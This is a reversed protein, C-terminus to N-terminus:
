KGMHFIIFTESNMGHKEFEKNFVSSANIITFDPSFNQLQEKEPQIFMNHVFHAQWARKALIRVNISYNPDFGAFGDFLYTKSDDSNYYNIVKEYLEDFIKEDLKQNVPGWWLQDTSSPEDVIYKDKPSRGTYKGTDVISAGNAGMVGEKNALTEEILDDISLNRHVQNLGTLGLVDLGLEKGSITMKKRRNGM